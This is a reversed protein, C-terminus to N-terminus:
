GPVGEAAVGRRRQAEDLLRLIDNCRQRASITLETAAWAEDRLKPAASTALEDGLTECLRRLAILQASIECVVAAIDKDQQDHM